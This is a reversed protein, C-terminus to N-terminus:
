RLTLWTGTQKGSSNSKSSRSSQPRFFAMTISQEDKSTINYIAWVCCRCCLMSFSPEIVIFIWAGPLFLLSWIFGGDKGVIVKTGTVDLGLVSNRGFGSRIVLGMTPAGTGLSTPNPSLGGGGFPLPYEMWDLTKNFEPFPPFPALLQSKPSPSIVPPSATNGTAKLQSVLYSHWALQQAQMSRVGTSVSSFNAAIQDRLFDDIFIPSFSSAKYVSFWPSGLTSDGFQVTVRDGDPSLAFPGRFANVDVRPTDSFTPSTYWKKM